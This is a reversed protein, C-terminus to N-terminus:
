YKFLFMCACIADEQTTVTLVLKEVHGIPDKNFLTIILPLWYICIISILAQSKATAFNDLVRFMSYLPFTKVPSQTSKPTLLM